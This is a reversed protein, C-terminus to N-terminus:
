SMYKLSIHYPAKPTDVIQVFYGHRPAGGSLEKYPQKSFFKLSLIVLKYKFTKEFSYSYSDNLPGGM